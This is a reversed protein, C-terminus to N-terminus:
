FYRKLALTTAFVKGDLLDSSKDNYINLYSMLGIEWDNALKKTMDLSIGTESTELNSFSSLSFPAGGVVDNFGTTGDTTTYSLDATVTFDDWPIFYFSLSYSNAKDAYPVGIDLYFYNLVGLKRQANKQM